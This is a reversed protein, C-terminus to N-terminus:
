TLAKVAPEKAICSADSRRRSKGVRLLSFSRPFFSVVRLISKVATKANLVSSIASVM